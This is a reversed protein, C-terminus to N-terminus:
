RWPGTRPCPTTRASSRGRARDRGAVVGGLGAGFRADRRELHRRARELRVRVRRRGSGRLVAHAPRDRGQGVAFVNLMGTSGESTTGGLGHAPVGLRRERAVGGAPELRRRLSRHAARGRGRGGPGQQFGGLNDRDLLYVYGQKGAAVALHPHAPTGLSDPLGMPGGSGIDADWVNLQYGDYPMWFDSPTLKGDAGVNLRVWAQGLLIPPQNGPRPAPPVEGNGM